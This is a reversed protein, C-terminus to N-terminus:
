RLLYVSMFRDFKNRRTLKKTQGLKTNKRGDMEMRGEWTCRTENITEMGSLPVWGIKRCWEYFLTNTMKQANKKWEFNKQCPNDDDDFNFTTSGRKEIRRVFFLVFLLRSIFVGKREDDDDHKQIYRGMYTYIDSM